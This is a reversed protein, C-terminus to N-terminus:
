PRTWADQDHAMSRPSRLVDPVFLFSLHELPHGRLAALRLLALGEVFVYGETAWDEEILVENAMGEAYVQERQSILDELASVFGETDGVALARSCRSRPSPDDPELVAQRALIVKLEAGAVGSAPLHQLLRMYLFDEEYEWDNVVDDPTGAAITAASSWDSAAVADFWAECSSTAIQSSRPGRLRAALATGSRVLDAFLDSPEASLLFRAIGRRRFDRCLDLVREDSLEGAALMPVCVSLVDSKDAEVATLFISSM